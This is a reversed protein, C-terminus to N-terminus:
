SKLKRLKKEEREADERLDDIKKQKKERNKEYKEIDKPSLKGKSLKKAHKEADKILEEQAVTIRDNAKNL